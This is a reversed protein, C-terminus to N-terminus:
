GALEGSSPVHGNPTLKDVVGPLVKSLQALVDSESMGSQRALDGITQQGLASGLQGPQIPQNQGQGLWSNAVESHGANRLKDLLGGLGGTLGGGFGGPQAGSTPAPAPSSSHSMAKGLLLAGLAIILPKSLDGGPVAGNLADDFMGM